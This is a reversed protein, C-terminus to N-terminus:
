LQGYHVPLLAHNHYVPKPFAPQAFFYMSNQLLGLFHSAEFDFPAAFIAKASRLYIELVLAAHTFLASVCPM